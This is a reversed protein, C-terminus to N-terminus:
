DRIASPRALARAVRRRWVMEYARAVVDDLKKRPFRFAVFLAKRMGTQPHGGTHLLQFGEFLVTKGPEGTVEVIRQSDFPKPGTYSGILDGGRFVSPLGAITRLHVDDHCMIGCNHYLAKHYSRLVPNQPIKDSGHVYTFPGNGPEVKSLYTIIPLSYEVQDFHFNAYAHHRYRHKWGAGHRVADAYRIHAWPWGVKIGVYDQIVPQVNKALWAKLDPDSKLDYNSTDVNAREMEDAVKRAGAILDADLQWSFVSDNQCLFPRTRLRLFFFDQVLYVLAHGLLPMLVSRDAARQLMQVSVDVYVNVFSNLSNSAVADCFAQDLQRTKEKYYSNDENNFAIGHWVPNQELNFHQFPHKTLDAVTM